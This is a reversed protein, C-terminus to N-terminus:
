RIRVVRERIALGLMLFMYLLVRFIMAGGRLLPCCSGHGARRSASLYADCRTAVDEEATGCGTCV